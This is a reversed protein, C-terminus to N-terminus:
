LWKKKRFYWLTFGSSLVMALVSLLYGWRWNLEPMIEFNMGYITAILTPPMFIVTVITFIKIIKNQEVNLLGLFTDQLYELREFGFRTHEYLSNIDKVVITLKPKLEAPFLESRLISSVVRQKDVINERILMSKEQLNKIELLINEDLNGTVLKKSLATVELALDEIMDADLEVRTEIIACFVQFGNIYNKTNAFIKRTTENFSKLEASRVSVLINNKLIFSIPEQEATEAILFNSNAVITDETEIYRSSIEIEEIEEEEQIYIKLFQELKSEVDLTVDNLDIWLINKMSIKELIDISRSMKLRNDDSYFIRIESM